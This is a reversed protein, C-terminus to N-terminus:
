LKVGDDDHGVEGVMSSALMGVNGIEMSTWADEGALESIESSRRVPM